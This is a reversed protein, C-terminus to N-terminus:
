ENDTYTMLGKVAVLLLRDYDTLRTIYQRSQVGFPASIRRVEKREASNRPSHGAGGGGSDMLCFM